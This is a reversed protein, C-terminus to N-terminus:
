VLCGGNMEYCIGGHRQCEPILLGSLEPTAEEALRCIEKVVERTEKSAMKCLRKNAIVQLEEANIDWIMSVEVDQRAATRDYESQRDNRQSKM